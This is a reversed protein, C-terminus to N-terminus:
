QMSGWRAEERCQEAQWCAEYNPHVTDGKYAYIGARTVTDVVSEKNNDALTKGQVILM